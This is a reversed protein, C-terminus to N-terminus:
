LESRIRDKGLDKKIFEVLINLVRIVIWSNELLSGPGSKRENGWEDNKYVKAFSEKRHESSESELDTEVKESLRAREPKNHELVEVHEWSECDVTITSTFSPQRKDIREEPSFHETQFIQFNLISLFYLRFIENWIKILRILGPTLSHKCNSYLNQVCYTESLFARKLTKITKTLTFGITIIM